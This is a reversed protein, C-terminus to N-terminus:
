KSKQSKAYLLYSYVYLYGISIFMLILLVTIATESRILGSIIFLLGDIMFVYGGIYHTKKWNDEDALAWPTKIGVFYNHRFQPMYNGMIIFLVGIGVPVILDINLNAGLSIAIVTWNILILFLTTFFIIKSYAPGHKKYNDRRPDIHPLVKKLVALALPLAGIILVMYKPDYRDVEGRMNWHMPVQEPLRNYIIFTGILSLLSLIIVMNNKKM